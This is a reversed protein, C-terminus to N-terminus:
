GDFEILPRVEVSGYRATPIDAALEAAADLDPVDVVYFGALMPGGTPTAEVSRKGDRVTVTVGKDPYQFGADHELVGAERVKADYALWETIEGESPGTVAPDYSFLLAFKM